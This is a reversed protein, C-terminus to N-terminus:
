PTDRPTDTEQKKQVLATILLKYLENFRKGFEIVITDLRRNVEDFKRNIEAYLADFRANM